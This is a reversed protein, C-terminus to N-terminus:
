LNFNIPGVYETSVVVNDIYLHMDQTTRTTGGHYVNMWIKEIKLERTKRFELRKNHYALQGDVWGKIIGNSKGISNLRLYQEICYWKNKQLYGLANDSWVDNDGYRKVQTHYIYNGIPYTNALPNNELKKRFLGRASWGNYGNPKRGGWGAKNYTGSIGPLKGGDIPSWSDGLRLYYRFYIEEPEKLGAKSFEFGAQMGKSTNKKIEVRLSHGILSQFKNEKDSDTVSVTKKDMGYTWPGGSWNSQDFWNIQDFNDNIIVAPHSKINFDKFFNKAIGFEKATPRTECQGFIVLKGTNKPAKKVHLKLLARRINKIKPISFKLLTTTDPSVKVYDRLGLNQNVKLAIYTDEKPTKIELKNNATTLELTPHLDVNKADKSYFRLSSGSAHKIIFTNNIAISSDVHTDKLRSKQITTILTTVDISLHKTTKNYHGSAFEYSGQETGMVDCWDGLINKWKYRAPSNKYLYNAGTYKIDGEYWQTSDSLSTTSTEVAISFEMFLILGFFTFLKITLNKKGYKM